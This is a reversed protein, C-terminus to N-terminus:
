YLKQDGSISVSISLLTTTQTDLVTLSPVALKSHLSNAADACNSAGVVETNNHDPWCSNNFTIKLNQM